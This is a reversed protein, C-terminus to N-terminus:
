EKAAVAIHQLTGLPRREVVILGETELLRAVQDSTMRNPRSDGPDPTWEVVVIRGTPRTIRALDRVMSPRDSLDHLLLAAITWDATAAGLPIASGDSRRTEVIRGLGAIEARSRVLDLMAEAVDIAYVRGEAGENAVAQAAPLTYFGPGCGVDAVVDGPALGLEALTEEAAPAGRRDPRLMWDIWDADYRPM